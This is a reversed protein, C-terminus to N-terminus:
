SCDTESVTSSQEIGAAVELLEINEPVQVRTHSATTSERPYIQGANPTIKELATELQADNIHVYRMTTEITSHGMFKQVIPLAVNALVLRTATTHRLAHVSVEDSQGSSKLAAKLHDRFTSYTPVGNVAVLARLSRALDDAIPISRPTDTKTRWLRVWHDEVQERQLAELEGWRMGTATLVRVVLASAHRERKLLAACVQDEVEDTLWHIQQSRAVVWPVKPARFGKPMGRDEAFTLVCSAATLYRNITAPSLANGARRGKRKRLTAVVRDLAATDVREIPTDRGIMTAVDELRQIISLDRGNHWSGEPGGADKCATAVSGFTTPTASPDEPASPLAGTLKVHGAWREGEAFTTCRKRVRGVGPLTAEAIWVGTLRGKLKEPYCSM